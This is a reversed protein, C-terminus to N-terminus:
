SCFFQFGVYCCVCVNVLAKQTVSVYMLFIAEGLIAFQDTDLLTYVFYSTTCSVELLTANQRISESAVACGGTLGLVKLLHETLLKVTMSHAYACASRLMQQDCM